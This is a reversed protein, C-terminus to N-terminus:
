WRPHNAFYQQVALARPTPTGDPELLNLPCGDLFPQYQLDFVFTGACRATKDCTSLVRLTANTPNPVNSYPCTAYDNGNDGSGEPTFGFESMVYGRLQHRKVYLRAAEMHQLTDSYSHFSIYDLPVVLQGNREVLEPV